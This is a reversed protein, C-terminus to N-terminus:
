VKVAEAEGRGPIVDLNLKGAFSVVVTSGVFRGPLITMEM